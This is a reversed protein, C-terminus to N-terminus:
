RHTGEAVRLDYNTQLNMWVAPDHQLVQVPYDLMSEQTLRAGAAGASRYKHELRPVRPVLGAHHETTLLTFAQEPVDTLGFRVGRGAPDLLITASQVGNPKTVVMNGDNGNM